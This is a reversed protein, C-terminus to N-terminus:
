RPHIAAACTPCWPGAPRWGTQELWADIAAAAALDPVALDGALLPGDGCAACALDDVPGTPACRRCLRAEVLGAGAGGAHTTDEAHTSDEPGADPVPVLWTITLDAVERATRGPRGCGNCVVSRSVVRRSGPRRPPVAALVPRSM